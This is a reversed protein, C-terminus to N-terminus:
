DIFFTAILFSRKIYGTLLLFDLLILENIEINNLWLYVPYGKKIVNLEM